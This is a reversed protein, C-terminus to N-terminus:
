QGENRDQIVNNRYASVFAPINLGLQRVLASNIQRMTESNEDINGTLSIVQRKDVTMIQEILILSKRNEPLGAFKNIIHVHVPINSKKIKATLPCVNLIKSNRNSINNSVVICPRIGSQVSKDIHEALKVYVIDGRILNEKWKVGNKM